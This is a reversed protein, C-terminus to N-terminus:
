PECELRWIVVGVRIVTSCRVVVELYGETEERMGDIEHRTQLIWAFGLLLLIMKGLPSIPSSRVGSGRAVTCFVSFKADGM